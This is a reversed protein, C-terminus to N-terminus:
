DPEGLGGGDTEEVRRWPSIRRLREAGCHKSLSLSVSVRQSHLLTISFIEARENQIVLGSTQRLPKLPQIQLDRLLLHIISEAHSSSLSHFPSCPKVSM